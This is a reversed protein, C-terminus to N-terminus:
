QRPRRPRSLPGETVVFFLVNDRCLSSGQRLLFSSSFGQRSATVAQLRPVMDPCLSGYRSVYGSLEIVLSFVKTTVWVWLSLTVEKPRKQVELGKKEKRFM